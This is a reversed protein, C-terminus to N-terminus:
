SASRLMQIGKRVAFVLGFIGLGVPLAVLIIAVADSKMTDFASSVATTVESDAAFASVSTAAVTGAAVVAGVIEKCKEKITTFVKKM